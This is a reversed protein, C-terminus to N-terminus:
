FQMEEYSNIKDLYERLEMQAVSKKFGVVSGDSTIDLFIYDGWGRDGVALAEPVYEGIVDYYYNATYIKYIGGDVMKYYCGFDGYHWDLIKGTKLDLTLSDPLKHAIDQQDGLYKVEDLSFEIKTFIEKPTKFDVRKISESYRHYRAEKTPRRIMTCEKKNENADSILVRDLVDRSSFSAKNNDAFEVANKFDDIVEEWGKDDLRSSINSIAMDIADLLLENGELRDYLRDVKRSFEDAKEAAKIDRKIENIEASVEKRLSQLERKNLRKM